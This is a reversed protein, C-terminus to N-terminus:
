LVVALLSLNASFTAPGAYNARQQLMQCWNNVPSGNEVGKWQGILNPCAKDKHALSSGSLM